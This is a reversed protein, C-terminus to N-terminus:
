RVVTLRATAAADGAQVRAVYVGPAWGRTDLAIEHRGAGRPGVAVEAVRRGLADYVSASVDAASALEVAVVADGRTPNPWAELRLTGGDAAPESAVFVEAQYLYVGAEGAAVIVVDPVASGARGTVIQPMWTAVGIGRDATASAGRPEIAGEDYAFLRVGFFDDAVAVSLDFSGDNTFRGASVDRAQTAAPATAVSALAAPDSVDVVRLGAQGDAVFAVADSSFESFTIANLFGFDPEAGIQVPAAPDSVDYVLMGGGFSTLYVLAGSGFPDAAVDVLNSGIPTTSLVAPAAPDAVDVAVLGGFGNAVFLVDGRMAMGLAQQGLDLEALPQPVPGTVDLVSVGVGHTVFAVGDQTTLVEQTNSPVDVRAAVIEETADGFGLQFTRLRGALDTVFLRQSFPDM